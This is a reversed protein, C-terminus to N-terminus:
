GEDALPGFAEEWEEPTVGTLIFERDDASLEPFAVQIHLASGNAQGVLWEELAKPAVPIVRTHRVGTLASEKTFQVQNPDLQRQAEQGIKSAHEPCANMAMEPEGNIVAVFEVTAPTKCGEQTCASDIAGSDDTIAVTQLLRTQTNM